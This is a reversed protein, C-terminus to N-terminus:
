GPWGGPMWPISPTAPRSSAAYRAAAPEGERRVDESLTTAAAIGLAYQYTYYTLFGFGTFPIPKHSSEV